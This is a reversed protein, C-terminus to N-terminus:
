KKKKKNYFHLGIVKPLLPVIKKNALLLDYSDWYKRKAEFPKYDIELKPFKIVKAVSIKEDM